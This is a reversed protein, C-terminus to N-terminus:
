SIEKIERGSYSRILTIADELSKTKGIFEKDDTIWGVSIHYVYFMNGSSEIRYLNRGGGQVVVRKVM